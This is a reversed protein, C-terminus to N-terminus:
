WKEINYIAAVIGCSVKKKNEVEIIKTQIEGNLSRYSNMNNLSKEIKDNLENRTKATLEVFVGGNEYDNVWGLGAFGKKNNQTVLVKSIVVYCKHGIRTNNYDVDDVQIKTNVPIVSSLCILNLNGIGAKFLANDFASLETDGIGIGSTIIIEM